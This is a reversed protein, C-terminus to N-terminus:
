SKPIELRITTGKELEAYQVIIKGKHYEEIIRKSLTLGVGWGRKKTTYGADFIQRAQHSSMGKGNDNVDIIVKESILHININIKGEGDLADLANRLLNEIVWEFLPDILPVLLEQEATSIHIQVKGPARKQIYDVVQQIAKILDRKEPSTTSGIKSFRDSVLKLRAVDHEMERIMSPDSGLERLVEVWGHLASVPTGLQHATEKAMSAWLQNQQARHRNRIAILTVVIFLAVIFLQIFPYYKVEKLLLSEGYYYKNYMTSDARLYTIIPKNSKFEELRSQLYEANAKSSDLNLYNTISDKENTEIVPISHQRVLIMSAFTIDTEPSAKAILQHAEVWVEIVQREKDAIQSALLRSYFISAVVIFIALSSILIRWNLWKM